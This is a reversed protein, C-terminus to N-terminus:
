DGAKKADPGAEVTHECCGEWHPNYDRSYATYFVTGSRRKHSFVGVRIELDSRKRRRIIGLNESGVIEIAM